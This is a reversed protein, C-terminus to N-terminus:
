RNLTSIRMTNKIWYLPINLQKYSRLMLVDRLSHTWKKTEDLKTFVGFNERRKRCLTRADNIEKIYSFFLFINTKEAIDYFM